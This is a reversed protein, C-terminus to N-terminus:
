GIDIVELSIDVAYNGEEVNEVGTVIYKKGEFEVEDGMVIPTVIFDDYLAMITPTFKRQKRTADGEQVSIYSTVNHFLGKLTSFETAQTTKEKFQNLQYRKFTYLKGQVTLVRRLKAKQFESQHM